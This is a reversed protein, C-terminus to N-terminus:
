QRLESISSLIGTWGPFSKSNVFAGQRCGKVQSKRVGLWATGPNPRDQIAYLRPM